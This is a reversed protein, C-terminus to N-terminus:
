CSGRSLGLTRVAGGPVFYRKVSATPPKRNASDYHSLNHLGPPVTMTNFVADLVSDLKRKEYLEISVLEPQRAKENWVTMWVDNDAMVLQVPSSCQEHTSHYLTKGSVADMLNLTVVSSGDRQKSTTAVALLNVNLYKHLVSREGTVRTASATREEASRRAVAM